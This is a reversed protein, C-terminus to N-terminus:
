PAPVAAPTLRLTLQHPVYRVFIDTWYKDRMADAVRQALEPTETAQVRDFQQGAIRVGIVPIAGTCLMRGTAKKGLRVYLQDDLVTLWVPFWYEGEDPCQTRLVVTDEDKWATPTWAKGPPLPASSGACGALLVACYLGMLLRTM